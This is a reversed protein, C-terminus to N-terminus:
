ESARPTTLPTVSQLDDKGKVDNYVIRYKGCMWCGVLALQIDSLIGALQLYIFEPSSMYIGPGVLYLAGHPIPTNWRHRVVTDSESRNANGSVLIHHKGVDAGVNCLCGAEMPKPPRIDASALDVASVMDLQSVCDDLQTVDSMRAASFAERGKRYAYFFAETHGCFYKM